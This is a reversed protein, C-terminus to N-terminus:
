TWGLKTRCRRSGSWRGERWAPRARRVARRRAAWARDRRGSRVRLPARALPGRRCVPLWSRLPWTWIAGGGGRAGALGATACVVGGLGSVGAGGVAVVALVKAALVVGACPVGGKAVCVEVAPGVRGPGTVLEILDRAIRRFLSEPTPSLPRPQRIYKLNMAKSNM